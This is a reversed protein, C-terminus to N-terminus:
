YTTYTVWSGKGAVWQTENIRYWTYGDKTATEYVDREDGTNLKNGSKEASLGYGNRINLRNVNIVIHGIPKDEEIEPKEGVDYVKKYTSGSVTIDDIATNVSYGEEALDDADIKVSVEATGDKLYTAFYNLNKLVSKDSNNKVNLVYEKGELKWEVSIDEFIDIQETDSLDEVEFDFSVDKLTLRAKKAAEADYACGYSITDGNSLSGNEVDSVVFGCEFSDELDVIADKGSDSGYDSEKYSELDSYSYGKAQAVKELAIQKIEEEEEDDVLVTAKGNIGGDLYLYDKADVDSFLSVTTSRLFFWYVGAGIAGAIVVVLLLVLLIKLPSKKKSMKQEPISSTYQPEELGVPISTEELKNPSQTIFSHGCKVCFKSDNDIKAGCNECFM